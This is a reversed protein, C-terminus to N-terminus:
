TETLLNAKGLAKNVAQIYDGSATYETEFAKKISDKVSKTLYKYTNGYVTSLSAAFDDASKISSNKTALTQIVKAVGDRDKGTKALDDRFEV